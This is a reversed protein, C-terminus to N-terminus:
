LCDSITITMTAPNMDVHFCECPGEGVGRKNNDGPYAFRIHNGEANKIELSTKTLKFASSEGFLAGLEQSNVYVPSSSTFDLETYMPGKIVGEGNEISFWIAVKIDCKTNKIITWVPGNVTPDVTPPPHMEGDTDHGPPVNPAQAFALNSISLLTLIILSCITKLAIKRSIFNKM